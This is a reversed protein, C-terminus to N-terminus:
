GPPESHTTCASRPMWCGYCCWWLRSCHPIPARIVELNIMTSWQPPLGSTLANDHLELRVLKTMTSWSAPLSGTLQYLPSSGPPKSWLRFDRLNTMGSWGTPLSAGTIRNGYMFRIPAGCLMLSKLVPLQSCDRGKLPTGIGELLGEQLSDRERERDRKTETETETERQRERQRERDRERQRERDRERDRERM